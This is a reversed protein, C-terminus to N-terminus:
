TKAAPNVVVAVPIDFGDIVKSLKDGQPYSYFLIQGSRGRNPAILVKGDIFYQSVAQSKHLTLVSAIHGNSPDVRYVSPTINEGQPYGIALIKGDWQLGGPDIIAPESYTFHVQIMELSAGGKRLRALDFSNNRRGYGDAYLTGANDYASYSFHTVEPAKYSRPSGKAAPYILVNGRGYVCSSHRYPCNNAVALDGNVPSVACGSAEMGPDNLTRIPKTGGHAFEIISSTDSTGVDTVFVDGTRDVCLGGPGVFGTLQGVKEGGPYSYVDVVKSGADSVYLLDESKAEPLMWSGSRDAHAAIARNQPMAGPAGIPLQPASCAALMAAAAFICLSRRMSTILAQV